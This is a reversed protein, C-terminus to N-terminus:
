FMQLAAEYEATHKSPFMTESIVVIPIKFGKNKACGLVCHLNSIYCLTVLFIQM